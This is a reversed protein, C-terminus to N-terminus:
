NIFIKMDCRERVNMEAFYKQELPIWEEFFRQAMPHTNRKLIREKQLASSIDLFVSFDYYAALEPHMSYAGEIVVLKKPTVKIWDGLSMTTCDFKRYNVIEGKSLPLLVESLFRERDVNGGIEAYREPTRQHRQLFFDDMHFVTCDYLETVLNSLTTKGSASGGEIAVTVTGKALRKDLEAFFPLFPIYEDAMTSYVPVNENM